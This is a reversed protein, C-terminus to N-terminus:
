HVLYLLLLICLAFSKFQLYLTIFSEYLPYNQYVAKVPTQCHLDLQFIM